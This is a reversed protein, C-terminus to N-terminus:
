SVMGTIRLFKMAQTLCIATLSVTVKGLPTEDNHYDFEYFRAQKPDSTTKGTEDGISVSPFRGRIKNFLEEGIIKLNKM